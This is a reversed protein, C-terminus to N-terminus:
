LPKIVLEDVDFAVSGLIPSAVAAYVVLQESGTATVALEVTQGADLAFGEYRLTDKRANTCVAENVAGNVRCIVDTEAVSLGIPLSQQFAVSDIKFPSNNTITIKYDMENESAQFGSFAVDLNPDASFDDAFIITEDDAIASPSQGYLGFDNGLADNASDYARFFCAVDDSPAITITQASLQYQLASTLKLGKALVRANSDIDLTVAQEETSFDFCFLPNESGVTNKGLYVDMGVVGTSVDYAVDGNIVFRGVSDDRNILLKLQAEALTPGFALALLGILAIKSSLFPRIIPM